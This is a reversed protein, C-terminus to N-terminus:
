REDAAVRTRPANAAEAGASVCFTGQASYEHPPRQIATFTVSSRHAAALDIGTDPRGAPTPQAARRRPRGLVEDISVSVGADQRVIWTPAM